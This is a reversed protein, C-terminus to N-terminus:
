KAAFLDGLDAPLEVKPKSSAAKKRTSAERTERRYQLAARIETETPEYGEDLVRKRLALITEVDMAAPINTEETM